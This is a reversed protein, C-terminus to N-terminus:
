NTKDRSMLNLFFQRVYCNECCRLIDDKYFTKKDTGACLDLIGNFIYIDENQYRSEQPFEIAKDSPIDVLKKKITDMSVKCNDSAHVGLTYASVLYLIGLIKKFMISM